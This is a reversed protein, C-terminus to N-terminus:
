QLTRWGLCDYVGRRRAEYTMAKKKAEMNKVSRCRYGIHTYRDDYYAEIDVGRKLIAETMNKMVLETNERRYTYNTFGAFGSM